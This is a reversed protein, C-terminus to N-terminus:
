LYISMATHLICTTPCNSFLVAVMDEYQISIWQFIFTVLMLIYSVLVGTSETDHINNYLHVLFKLAHWHKNPIWGTGRCVMVLSFEEPGLRPVMGCARKRRTISLM